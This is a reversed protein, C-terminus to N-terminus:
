RRGSQQGLTTKILDNVAQNVVDVNATSSEVQIYSRDGVSVNLNELKKGLADPLEGGFRHNIAAVLESRFAESKNIGHGQWLHRQDVQIDLKM